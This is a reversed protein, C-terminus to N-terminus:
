KKIQMCDLNIFERFNNQSFFIISWVNAYIMSKSNYFFCEM